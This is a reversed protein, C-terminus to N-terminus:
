RGAWRDQGLMLEHLVAVVNVDEGALRSHWLDVDGVIKPRSNELMAAAFDAAKGAVVPDVPDHIVFLM